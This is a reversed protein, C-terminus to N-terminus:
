EILGAGFEGDTVGLVGASSDQVFDRAFVFLAQKFSLTAVVLEVEKVFGERLSPRADRDRGNWWLLVEAILVQDKNLLAAVVELSEEAANGLKVIDYVRDLESSEGARVAGVNFFSEFTQGLKRDALGILSDLLSGPDVLVSVIDRLTLLECIADNFEVEEHFLCLWEQSVQLDLKSLVEGVLGIADLGVLTNLLNKLEVLIQIQGVVHLHLRASQDQVVRFVVAELLAHSM